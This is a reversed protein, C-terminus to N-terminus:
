SFTRGRALNLQAAIFQKMTIGAVALQQPIFSARTLGPLTNTELFYAGKPGMIVDTRSYGLCGLMKHATLGINQLILQVENTVDAPTIEKTGRGLYKGDYDFSGGPNTIVVESVPLPRLGNEFEAVGVTFERGFIREEAIYDRDEAEVKKWWADLAQESDLFALGVSSGDRKPKVVIRNHRSLFERLLKGDNGVGTHVCLAAALQIGSNCLKEKAIEKDFAAASAVSGSGTFAIKKQELKKQLTGDEGEGGHLSLFFVCHEKAVADLAADICPWFFKRERPLFPVKCPNQHAIIEDRSVEIVDGEPSWFWFRADSCEAAVHQASAVSVLRESCMGGFLVIVSMDCQPM